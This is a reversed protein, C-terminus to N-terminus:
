FTTFDYFLNAAIIMLTARLAEDYTFSRNPARHARPRALSEDTVLTDLPPTFDDVGWQSCLM